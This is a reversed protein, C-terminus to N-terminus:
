FPYRGWNVIGSLLVAFVIGTLFIFNVTGDLGLLSRPITM